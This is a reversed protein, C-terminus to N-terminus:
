VRSLASILPHLRSTILIPLRGPTPCASQLIHSPVTLELMRLRQSNLPSVVDQSGGHNLTYTYTTTGTSSSTCTHEVLDLSASSSFADYTCTTSVAVVATSYCVVVLALLALKSNQMEFFLLRFPKPFTRQSPDERTTLSQISGLRLFYYTAVSGKWNDLTTDTSLQLAFSPTERQGRM